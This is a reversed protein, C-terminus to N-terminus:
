RTISKAKSVGLSCGYVPTSSIRSKGEQILSLIALYGANDGEHGRGDTIGGCFRPAGTADYLMTQGSTTAGFAASDRGGEDLMVAVNPIAKAQRWLDSNLWNAPADKPHIFLLHADIRGESRSMIQALESLSARSCPCEPHLAMVLTFRTASRPFSVTDPWKSPADRALADPTMQYHVLYSMGCVVAIGWALVM